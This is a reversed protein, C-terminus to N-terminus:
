GDIKMASKEQLFRDYYKLLVRGETMARYGANYALLANRVNGARSHYEKLINVSHKINTDINLLEHRPINPWARPLIQACGIAGVSSVRNCQFATEIAVVSVIDWRNPFGGRTEYKIAAQAIQLATERSVTSKYRKQISYAVLNIAKQKDSAPKKPPSEPPSVPDPVPEDGEMIIEIKDVRKELKVVRTLNSAVVGVIIGAALAVFIRIMLM